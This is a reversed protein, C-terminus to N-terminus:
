LPSDITMITRTAKKSEGGWFFMCQICFLKSLSAPSGKTQGPLHDDQGSMKRQGTTIKAARCEIRQKSAQACVPNISKDTRKSWTHEALIQLHSCYCICAGDGPHAAPTYIGKSPEDPWSVWWKRCLTCYNMILYVSVHFKLSNPYCVSLCRMNPCIRYDGLAFQPLFIIFLLHCTNAM